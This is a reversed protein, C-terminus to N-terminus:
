TERTSTLVKLVANRNKGKGDVIMCLVVQM